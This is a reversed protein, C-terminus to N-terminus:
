KNPDAIPVLNADQYKYEKGAVKDIFKDGNKLGLNSLSFTDEPLAMNVQMDSFTSKAQRRLRGDGGDYQVVLQESPLFIGQIKIWDTAGESIKIGKGNKVEIHTPNFGNKEEFIYKWEFLPNKFQVRYTTGKETQAKELIVNSFASNPMNGDAGNPDNNYRRVGESMMSLLVWPPKGISFCHRPDSEDLDTQAPNHLQKEALWTLITGDKKFTYPSSEIEYENAIIKKTEYSSSLPTYNLGTGLDIYEMPNPRSMFRFSLNNELDIKFEKTGEARVALENPEKITIGTDQKVLDAAYKGEYFYTSESSIKGQWTKIKEYNTRTVAVLMALEDPIKNQVVKQFETTDTGIAPQMLGFIILIVLAGGAIKRCFNHKSSMM